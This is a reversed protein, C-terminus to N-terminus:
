LGQGTFSTTENGFSDPTNNFSPYNITLAPVCNFILNINPQCSLFLKDLLSHHM